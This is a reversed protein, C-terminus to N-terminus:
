GDTTRNRTALLDAHPHSSVGADVSHWADASRSPCGNGALGSGLGGQQQPFGCGRGQRRSPSNGVCRLLSPTRLRCRHHQAWSCDDGAQVPGHSGCPWHRWTPDMWSVPIVREQAGTAIILGRAIISSSGSPTVIGLRWGSDNREIHWVRTERSFELKARALEARLRDGERKEPTSPAALIAESSARWVQGGARSQEDFLVTRLGCQAATLAAASGGPGAGIIALDFEVAM